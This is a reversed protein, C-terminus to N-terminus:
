LCILMQFMLLLNMFYLLLCLLLLLLLGKCGNDMVVPTLWYWFHDLMKVCVILVSGKGPSCWFLFHCSLHIWVIMVMRGLVRFLDRWKSCVLADEKNIKLHRMYAEVVKKWTRDSIGVINATQKSLNQV